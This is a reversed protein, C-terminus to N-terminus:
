DITLPHCDVAMAETTVGAELDGGLTMAEAGIDRARCRRVKRNLMARQRRGVPNCKLLPKRQRDAKTPRLAPLPAHLCPRLCRWFAIPQATGIILGIRDAIRHQKDVTIDIRYEGDIGLPHERLQVTAAAVHGQQAIPAFRMVKAAGAIDAVHPLM